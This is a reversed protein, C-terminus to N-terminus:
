DAPNSSGRNTTGSSASTLTSRVSDGPNLVGPSMMRFVAATVWIPGWIMVTMMWGLSSYSLYPADNRSDLAARTSVSEDKAITM